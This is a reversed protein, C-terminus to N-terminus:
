VSKQTTIGISGILEPIEQIQSTQVAKPHKLSKKLDYSFLFIKLIASIDLSVKIGFTEPQLPAWLVQSPVLEGDWLCTLSIYTTMGMKKKTCPDTLFSKLQHM